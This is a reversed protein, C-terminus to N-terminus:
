SWVMAAVLGTALVLLILAAPLVERVVSASERSANVSELGTAVIVPTVSNGVNAGVTQAALLSPKPVDLLDASHAQLGSFLANSSTTSGSMFSGLAGLTPAALPDASGLAVVFGLALTSTTGTDVLLSSLVTLALIPILITAPQTGLGRPGVADHARPGM